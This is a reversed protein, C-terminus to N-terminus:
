HRRVRSGVPPPGGYRALLQELQPEPLAALEAASHDALARRWAQALLEREAAIIADITRRRWTSM